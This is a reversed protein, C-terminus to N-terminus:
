AGALPMGQALRPIRGRYGMAEIALRRRLTPSLAHALLGAGRALTALAGTNAFLRALGDTHAITAQQDPARWTSYRRLLSADGPDPDASRARQDALLEALVAVDRLGLNFGQAGIPHIAHAANGLLVVRPRWDSLATM